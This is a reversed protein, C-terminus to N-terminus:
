SLENLVDQYIALEEHRVYEKVRNSTFIEPIRKYLNRLNGNYFGNHTLSHVVYNRYEELYQETEKNM